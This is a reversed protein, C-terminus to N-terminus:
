ELVGEMDYESVNTIKVKHYAPLSIKQTKKIFVNGDIEPADFHSRGIYKNRQSGEVLVNLTRGILRSLSEYAIQGQLILLEEYRETAVEVPVKQEILSAATGEEDSYIFSGVRDFRAKKLFSLLREFDEDTEGPFGVIVSTRIAADANAQKIKGILELLEDSTRIRGMRKLIEDSGHQVPMDFYPLIKELSLIAQVIGDDIHDPHLYMVRVRFEGEISSLKELLYPLSPKGYLDLGYATTDQAVLIIERVGNHVLNRVETEIVEVNRSRFKGKFSPIACFTCSRNCGDAIKVYAFSGRCSRISEGYVTQPEAILFRVRKEIAEAIQLPSLVGYWADVEPIESRLIDGYRQVLCGKVCLFFSHDKKYNVFDIIEDISERKASEIFGCTDIIVVEAQDVNRVIQHGRSRLIAELVDCDAENKPCGLIKLGIRM